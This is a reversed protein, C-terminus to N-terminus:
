FGGVPPPGGGFLFNVLYFVDGVTVAGDGNVEAPGIPSPGGAFLFNILYAIDAATIVGDGNADGKPPPPAIFDVTLTPRTAVPIIERSDFRKATTAATENGIVIWGFNTGPQDLWGQVRAVMASTPGWAPDGMGVLATADAVADFDGGARSWFRDPYFTHIWTADDAASATGFGDRSPGAQSSGEGWNASIRHLGMSMEGAITQSVHLTLVTRTIQSGPPIQSAIDFALLARRLQGSVTSGAFIHVGAGNASSGDSSQYLTADKSPTLTVTAALGPATAVFLIVVLQLIVALLRSTKVSPMMSRIVSTRASAVTLVAFTLHGPMDSAAAASPYSPRMM